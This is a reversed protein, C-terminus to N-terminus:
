LRGAIWCTGVSTAWGLVYFAADILGSEIGACGGQENLMDWVFEKAAIWLAVAVTTWWPSTGLLYAGGFVITSAIFFHGIQALLNDSPEWGVNNASRVFLARHDIM